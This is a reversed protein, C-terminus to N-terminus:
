TATETLAGPAPVTVAGSEDERSMWDVPSRDVKGRFIEQIQGRAERQKPGTKRDGPGQCRSSTAEARSGDGMAASGQLSFM